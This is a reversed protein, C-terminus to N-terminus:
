RKIRNLEGIRVEPVEIVTGDPWTITLADVREANGLGFTITLESQSLYSKTPMVQRRQTVGGATLEVWAGIGDRNDAGGEVKVRVWRHGTSQDNRLLLPHDGAQTIVVDLDGDGDLDACAAGRGVVPRALDGVAEAPLPLFEREGGEGANWFLQSPQRYHQSPDVKDIEQELHGNTQFIDLRGDLDADFLFVGFSLALRSPAGIGSSIAEDVYFSPDDQAVYISTMENAFNGILFGLNSDNRFYAVDTGMAGTANGDRDYALGFFESAEEFTGDGRNHFFFNRVTDNAVLLDMAGDGDADIPSVGLAKAMPVGTVPNDVRVGAAASIDTFTGDGENRYLYPYTGQYNQPPGYARGVGTLRYDLEFDIERSWRVYNAVFLDLDSDGDADFFAAGTSWESEAGAVGARDTVDEFRGGRNALLRNKGVATLFVDPHGDGELDAVAVGMGYLGRTLRALGTAESVDTFHGAGDNEYLASTGPATGAPYAHHPWPASSVLLLDSDGDGDYDFFAVGSGMSEPLLKDGYAGTTHIFDIGAAATIDTFPLAPMEASQRAVNEPAATEIAQEPAAAEPRNALYIVGVVLVAAAAIVVLSWRFARGIIADDEAVGEEALIQEDLLEGSLPEENRPPTEHNGTKEPSM